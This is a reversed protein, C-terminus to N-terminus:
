KKVESKSSESKLLKEMALLPTGYLDDSGCPAFGFTEYLRIARELYPTTNLLLKRYNGDVAYNEIEKLLKEGIRNGRAEPLIAMSRIYLSDNKPVVSVTGVIEDNKIAAWIKGEGFRKRIEDAPPVTAAYAATTYSSKYEAFSKALVAAIAESDEPEAVRIKPQLKQVEGEYEDHLMSMVVLSEYGNETKLCERLVGEAQFGEAEYIHKARANQEKVDLWLRHAKLQEFALKKVLRLACKGYGQNKETVVIRRFEISDNADALGALIVYGVQKGDANEVVFHSLDEDTIASLHQERSWVNVFSSNEANQEVCSVFDLDNETTQQLRINM